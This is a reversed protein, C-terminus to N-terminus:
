GNIWDSDENSVVDGSSVRASQFGWGTSTGGSFDIWASGDWGYFTDTTTDFVIDGATKPDITSRDSLSPAAFPWISRISPNSYALGGLLCSGLVAILINKKM